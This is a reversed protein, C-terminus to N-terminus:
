TRSQQPNRWATCLVNGVLKFLGEDRVIVHRGNTDFECVEPNTPTGTYLFVQSPPFTGLFSQSGDVISHCDQNATWGEITFTAATGTVGVTCSPEIALLTRQLAGSYLAIGLCLMLVLGVGLIIAVLMRNRNAAPTASDKLLSPSIPFMARSARRDDM